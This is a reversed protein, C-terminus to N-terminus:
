LLTNLKTWDRLQTRSKAVGHIAARWAERDMVLERLESLSVDMSNTIGDLWGDETMGKEEQGWDRGADSDKGILWSKVHPPWLIPTEANADTRGIFVSHIETCHVSFKLVIFVTSFIFFLIDPYLHLCILQKDKQNHPQGSAAAWRRQGADLSCHLVYQWGPSLDSNLIQLLIDISNTIREHRQLTLYDHTWDDHSPSQRYLTVYDYSHCQLMKAMNQWNSALWLQECM